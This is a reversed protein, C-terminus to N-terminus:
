FYGSAMSPRLYVDVRDQFYWDLLFSNEIHAALKFQRFHGPHSMNPELCRFQVYLIDNTWALRVQTSTEKGKEGGAKYFHDLIPSTTWLAVPTNVTPASKVPLGLTMATVGYIVKSQAVVFLHALFGICSLLALRHLRNKKVQYAKKMELLNVARYHM